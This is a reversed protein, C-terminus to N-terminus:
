NQSSQQNEHAVLGCDTSWFGKIEESHAMMRQIEGKLKIIEFFPLGLTSFRSKYPELIIYMERLKRDMSESIGIEHEKLWDVWTKRDNREKKSNEAKHVDFTMCLLSGYQLYFFLTTAHHREIQKIGDRLKQISDTSSKLDLANFFFVEKRTKMTTDVIKSKLYEHLEQPTMAKKEKKETESYLQKLKRKPASPLKLLKKEDSPGATKMQNIVALMKTHYDLNEEITLHQERTWSEFGYDDWHMTQSSSESQLLQSESTEAM